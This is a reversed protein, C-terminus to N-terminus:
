DEKKHPTDGGVSLRKSQAIWEERAIRGKHSFHSDIWTINDATWEAIQAYHYIGLEYLGNEIKIGIGEIDKLDDALGDRPTSLTIPKIGKEVKKITADPISAFVEKHPTTNHQQEEDYDYLPVKRKLEDVDCRSIRGLLYGIIGGLVAAILLCFLMQMALELM